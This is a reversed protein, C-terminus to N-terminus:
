NRLSEWCTWGECVHGAIRLQNRLKLFKSDWAADGIKEWIDWLSVDYNSWNHEYADGHVLVIRNGFQQQLTLGFYRLVAEDKEVVTLCEVNKRELVRRALWGMGMGAIAVRGKARRLQARQTLIEMPTLSMWPNLMTQGPKALIPITVPADFTIRIHRTPSLPTTLFSRHWEFRSPLGFFGSFGGPSWHYMPFVRRYLRYDGVVITPVDIANSETAPLIALEPFLKDAWDQFSVAEITVTDNHRVSSPVVFSESWPLVNKEYPRLGVPAAPREKTTTM